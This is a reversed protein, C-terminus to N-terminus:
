SRESAIVGIQGYMGGESLSARVVAYVPV